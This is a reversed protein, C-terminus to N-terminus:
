TKVSTQRAVPTERDRDLPPPRQGPSPTETWPPPRQGPSPTEKWFLPTETWPLPDRDLSPTETWSLPTETQPIETRPDRDLPDKNLPTETWPTRQGPPTETLSVEGSLSGGYPLSRTTRMRSSHMKTTNSKLVLNNVHSGSNVFYLSLERFNNFKFEM